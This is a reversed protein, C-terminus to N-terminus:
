RPRARCYLAVAASHQRDLGIATFENEVILLRLGQGSGLGAVAEHLALRLGIRVNPNRKSKVVTNAETARIGKLSIATM